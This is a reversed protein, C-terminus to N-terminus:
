AQKLPDAAVLEDRLEILRKEISRADLLEMLGVLHVVLLKLRVRRFDRQRAELELLFNFIVKSWRGTSSAENSDFLEVYKCYGMVTRTTGRVDIMSEGIARLEERFILTDRWDLWDDAENLHGDALDSRVLSVAAELKKSHENNGSHLYTGEQRYLELWGLFACFRYASSVLKYRQFYPDDISNHLQREPRSALVDSKLFVTPYDQVIEALRSALERASLFLPDRYKDYLAELSQKQKWREFSRSFVFDKLFIGLLAGCTSIVAAIATFQLWDRTTFESIM